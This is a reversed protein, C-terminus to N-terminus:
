KFYLDQEEKRRNALGKLRKGGAFVWKSFENGAKDIKGAQLLKFMTSAKFNAVGINYALSMIAACKEDSLGVPLHKGIQGWYDEKLIEYLYNSAEQETVLNPYQKAILANAKKYNGGCKALIDNCAQTLQCGYVGGYKKNPRLDVREGYGITPRVASCYYVTSVFNEWKKILPMALEYINEVTM